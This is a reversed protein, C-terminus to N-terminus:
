RRRREARISQWAHHGVIIVSVGAFALLSFFIYSNITAVSPHNDGSQAGITGAQTVWNGATLLVALIALWAADILLRVVLRLRIWDPRVLNVVAQLIGVLTFVIIPLHVQNWVPGPQFASAAPGLILYSTNQVALLWLLFVILAIFQAFSELRPVQREDKEISQWFIASKPNWVADWQPVPMNRDVFAFILTVISFQAMTQLCIATVAGEFTITIRSAILVIVM